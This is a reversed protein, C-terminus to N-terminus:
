RGFSQRQTGGASLPLSHRSWQDDFAGTTWLKVPRRAETCLYPDPSGVLPPAVVMAIHGGEIQRSREAPDPPEGVQRLSLQCTRAPQGLGDDRSRLGAPMVERDAGQRGGGPEGVQSHSQEM